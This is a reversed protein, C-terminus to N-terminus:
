KRAQVFGVLDALTEGIADPRIGLEELPQRLRNNWFTPFGFSKAGAADWSAFAAFAIEERKLKLTDVALQYTRPDPKYSKVQDTSLLHEFMGELGSSRVNSELMRPTFNSLFVLRIGADRLTKLASPVDQWPKLELYSQMLQARNETSLEINTLKAAFVLADETVQWFDAYRHSLSRLWTYEFQRTRWANNLAAGDRGFLKESLAFIPRPDFIPFADFAVAKIKPESMTAGIAHNAFLGAAISGAVGAVFIRRNVSM